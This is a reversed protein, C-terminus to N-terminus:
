PVTARPGVFELRISRLAIDPNFYPDSELVSSWRERMYACEKRFRLWKEGGSDSGQAASEYDSYKRYGRDLLRLYFDVDNLVVSLNIEDFGGVDLFASQAHGHV